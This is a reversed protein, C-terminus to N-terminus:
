TSKSGRNAADAEEKDKRALWRARDSAKFADRLTTEIHEQGNWDTYGWGNTDSPAHGSFSGENSENSEQISPPQQSEISWRCTLLRRFIDIILISVVTLFLNKTTIRNPCTSQYEIFPRSDLQFDRTQNRLIVAMGNIPKLRLELRM